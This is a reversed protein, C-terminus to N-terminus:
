IANLIFKVEYNSNSITQNISCVNRNGCEKKILRIIVEPSPLMNLNFQESSGVLERYSVLEWQDGIKSRVDIFSQELFNDALEIYISENEIKIKARAIFSNESSVYSIKGELYYTKDYLSLSACGSLIIALLFLIKLDSSCM